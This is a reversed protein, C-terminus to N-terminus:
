INQDSISAIGYTLGFVWRLLLCMGTSIKGSKLGESAKETATEGIALYSDVDLLTNADVCAQIFNTTVVPINYKLARECKFATAAYEKSPVM